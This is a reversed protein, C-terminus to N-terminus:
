KESHSGYLWVVFGDSAGCVENAVTPICMKEKRLSNGSFVNNYWGRSHVRGRTRIIANGNLRSFIKYSKYSKYSILTIM